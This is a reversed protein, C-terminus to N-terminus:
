PTTYGDDNNITNYNENDFYLNLGSLSYLYFLDDYCEDSEMRMMIDKKIKNLDLNEFLLQSYQHSKLFEKLIFLIRLMKM